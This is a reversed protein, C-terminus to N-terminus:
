QSSPNIILDIPRNDKGVGWITYYDGEIAAQYEVVGPTNEAAEDQLSPGTPNFPNKINGPMSDIFHAVDEPYKGENISTIEVTLQVSRMNSILSAIKAKDVFRIYNPISIAVLVGIIVIVVFLEILTFGKRNKDIM